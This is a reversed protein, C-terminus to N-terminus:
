GFATSERARFPRGSGLCSSNSVWNQRRVAGGCGIGRLDDGIKLVLEGLGDRPLGGGGLDQADNTLRRSVDPGYEVGDHQAGYPQKAAVKRKEQTAVAPGERLGGQHSRISRENGEISRSQRDVGLDVERRAGDDALFVQM